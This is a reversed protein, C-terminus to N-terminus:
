PRDVSPCMTQILVAHTYTDFVETRGWLGLLGLMATKPLLQRIHKKKAKEGAWMEAFFTKAVEEWLARMKLLKSTFEKASKHSSANFVLKIHHWAFFGYELGNLKQGRTGGRGMM